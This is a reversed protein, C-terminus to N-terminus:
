INLFKCLSKILGKMSKSHPTTINKYYKDYSKIINQPLSDGNQLIQAIFELYDNQEDKYTLDRHRFDEDAELHILAHYATKITLDDADKPFKLLADKVCLIEALVQYILRSVAKREEKYDKKVMKFNNAVGVNTRM